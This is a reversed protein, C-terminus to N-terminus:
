PATAAVAFLGDPDYDSRVRDLRTASEGLVAARLQCAEEELGSFNVYVGGNSFRQMARWAGRAWTIASADLAPDTWFADFSVNHLASRHPYASEDSDVRAVAGGLTRIVILSEPTPRLSDWELLTAIADDSLADTFHSNMYARVGDPVLGDIESQVDVYRRLGSLDGLPTGLSRLPALARDAESPPGAYVASVFVVKAWHMEAPIDPAPPMAWLALEPSVTDPADVVVDRFARLVAEAQEYPYVVQAMAVEPGLPHLDFEFSTV